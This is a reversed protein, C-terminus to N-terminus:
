RALVLRKGADKEWCKAMIAFVDHPCNLPRELRLGECVMRPVQLTPFRVGWRYPFAVGVFFTLAGGVM